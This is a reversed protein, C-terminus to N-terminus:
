RTTCVEQLLREHARYEAQFQRLKNSEDEAEARLRDMARRKEELSEKLRDMERKAVDRHEEIVRIAPALEPNYLGRM